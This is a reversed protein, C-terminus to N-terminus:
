RFQSHLTRDGPQYSSGAITELGPALYHELNHGGDRGEHEPVPAPPDPEVLWVEGPAGGQVEWRPLHLDQGLHDQCLGGGQQPERLAM